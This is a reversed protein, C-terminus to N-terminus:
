TSQPIPKANISNAKPRSRMFRDATMPHRPTISNNPGAANSVNKHNIVQQPPDTKM